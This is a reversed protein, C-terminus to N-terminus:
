PEGGPGWAAKRQQPCPRQQTPQARPAVSGTSRMSLSSGLLGLLLLVGALALSWRFSAAPRRVLWLIAGTGVWWSLLAFAVAAAVSHIWEPMVAGASM